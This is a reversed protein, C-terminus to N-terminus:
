NENRYVVGVQTAGNIFAVSANKLAAVIKEQSQRSGGIPGDGQEIRWITPHSIGAQEALDTARWGILERAAKLQRVTIM